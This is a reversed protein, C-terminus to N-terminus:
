RVPLPTGVTVTALPPHAPGGQTRTPLAGPTVDRHHAPVSNSPPGYYLYALAGAFLAVGLPVSLLLENRSMHQPLGSAFTAIAVMVAFILIM